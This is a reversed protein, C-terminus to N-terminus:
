VKTYVRERCSARGIELFGISPDPNAHEMDATTMMAALAGVVFSGENQSYLISYVNDLGEKSYDVSTDYTFWYKDPHQPAYTEIFEQLQWTGAIIIDWDGEALQAIDPEWRAPDYGGEIIRATIGLQEEAMEVGRAASDFFSKDGLTGNLYLVVRLDGEDGVASGAEAQGGAFGIASVLALIIAVLLARRM